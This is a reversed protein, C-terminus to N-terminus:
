KVKFGSVADGPRDYMKTAERRKRCRENKEDIERNADRAADAKARAFKPTHGSVGHKHSGM